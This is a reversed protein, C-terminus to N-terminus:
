KAYESNVFIGEHVTGDSYTMRGHGNQEGNAWEGEYV